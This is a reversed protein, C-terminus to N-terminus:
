WPPAPGGPACFALRGRVRARCACAAPRHANRAGKRPAFMSKPFGHTTDSRHAERGTVPHSGRSHEKMGKPHHIPNPCPVRPVPCPVGLV